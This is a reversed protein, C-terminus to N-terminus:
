TAFDFCVSPAMVLGKTPPDFLHSAMEEPLPFIRSGIGEGRKAPLPSPHPTFFLLGFFWTFKKLNKWLFISKLLINKILIKNFNLM